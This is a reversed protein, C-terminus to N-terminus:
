GLSEGVPDSGSARDPNVTAFAKRMRLYVWGMFAGLVIAAVAYPAFTWGPGGSFWRVQTQLGRLVAM